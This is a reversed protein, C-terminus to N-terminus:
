SPPPPALRDLPAAADAPALRGAAADDVADQLGELLDALVGALGGGDDLAEPVDARDRALLKDRAADLDDGDAIAVAGDAIRFAEVDRSKDLVDVGALRQRLEALGLADRAFLQQRCRARDQHRGGELADDVRLVGGLQAAADEGLAGVAGGRRLGVRNEFVAIDEDDGVDEAVGAADGDGIEFPHLINLLEQPALLLDVVLQFLQYQLCKMLHA